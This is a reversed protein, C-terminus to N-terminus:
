DKIVFEPPPEEFHIRIGISAKIRGHPPGTGEHGSFRRGGSAPSTCKHARRTKKTRSLSSLSKFHDQDGLAQEEDAEM